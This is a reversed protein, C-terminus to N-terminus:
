FNANYFNKEQLLIDHNMDYITFIYNDKIGTHIFFSIKYPLDLYSSYIVQEFTNKIEAYVKIENFVQSSNMFNIGMKDEVFGLFSIIPKNYGFFNKLNEKGSGAGHFVCPFTNTNKNRLRDNIKEFDKGDDDYGWLVQFIENYKDLKIKVDMLNITTFITHYYQDCTHRRQHIVCLMELIKQFKGNKFIMTGSNLFYNDPYFKFNPIPWCNKECSYLVDIDLELFKKEIENDSAEVSTDFADIYMIIEDDDYKKLIDLLKIIKLETYSDGRDKIFEDNDVHLNYKNDNKGMKELNRVLLDYNPNQKYNKDAQLITRM